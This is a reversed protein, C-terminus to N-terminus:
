VVHLRVCPALLVTAFETNLAIQKFTKEDEATIDGKIIILDSSGDKGARISIDAAESQQLASILSFGAVTLALKIKKWASM